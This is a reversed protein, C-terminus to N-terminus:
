ISVGYSRKQMTPTIFRTRHFIERLFEARVIDELISNDASFHSEIKKLDLTELKKQKRLWDISSNGSVIRYLYSKLIRMQTFTKRLHWIKLLADEAIEESVSQDEIIRFSFFSLSPYISNFIESFAKEHGERFSKMLEIENKLNKEQMVETNSGSSM